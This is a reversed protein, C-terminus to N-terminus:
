WWSVMGTSASASKWVHLLTDRSYARVVYAQLLTRGHMWEDMWGDTRGDMWGNAHMKASICWADDTARFVQWGAVWGRRSSCYGQAPKNCVLGSSIIIPSTDLFMLERPEMYAALGQSRAAM